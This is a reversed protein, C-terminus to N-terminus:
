VRFGESEHLPASDEENQMLEEQGNNGMTRDGQFTM